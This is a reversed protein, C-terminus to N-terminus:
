SFLVRGSGPPALLQGDAYAIRGRLTTRLVRGRVQMGAFPSWDCRTFYGQDPLLWKPGIEFEVLGHPPPLGFIRAPNEVTLRVLQELSLREEAVATLLLPLMTELGPVGPPPEAGQKEALTHPAHDTAVCDIVSGLHDWLAAQDEETGLPPRMDALPGLRAADARTLFLHHPTVECTLPAGRAKAAAILEVEARRSIHCCHLRQGFAWALGIAQSLTAGEAHVAIPKGRPWARMHALLSPLDQLRLPGYSQNLYLKLGVVERALRAVEQANNGTGGLFLGMDCHIKSRALDRKAILAAENITPPHTNPMDLVVAVGGALAAATGTQYDEKHTAGPERLHVHVDILAPIRHISM